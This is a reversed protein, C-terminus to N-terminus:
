PNRGPSTGKFRGCNVAANLCKKVLSELTPQHWVNWFDAHVSYVSGSSLTINGTTTGVPYHINIRMTPMAHPFGSPCLGRSPYRVHITANNDADMKGDWCAPFRMRLQILGSSCNAPMTKGIQTNGECGWEIQGGGQVQDLRTAKSNGIIIRMDPPFPILKKPDGASPIYYVIAASPNIKKGNRYLAPVWYAARDNSACTSTVGDMSQYTSSAKTSTNGFFDHLHSAGPRGPFVIPDDPASHSYRCDVKWVGGDAASADPSTGVVFYGASVSAALATLVAVLARRKRM